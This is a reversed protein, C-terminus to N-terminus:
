VMGKTKLKETEGSLNMKSLSKKEIFFLCCWLLNSENIKLWEIKAYYNPMFKHLM